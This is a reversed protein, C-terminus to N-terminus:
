WNGKNELKRFWDGYHLKPLNRLGSGLPASGQKLLLYDGM